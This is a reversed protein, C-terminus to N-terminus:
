DFRGHNRDQGNRTTHQDQKVLNSVTAAFRETDSIIGDVKGSLISHALLGPIAIALGTATTILAQSIGGAMLRPQGSGVVTIVDFTTIIGTVTGLLGLMPAVTSLMRISPLFRELKPFEHLLTEQIADDLIAPPSQRHILCARLTRPLVGKKGDAIRQAEEFKGQSCLRLVHDCFRLSHRGERLLVLFRDIILMALCLAIFALPIMVVGGSRLRHWLGEPQLDTTAAIQGTVDIPLWTSDSSAPGSTERFAELLSKRVQKPLQDQWRFGTQEHPASIAIAVESTESIRYAFLNRGVRLLKARRRQGQPDIIQSEYIATTRAERLFSDILDITLRVMEQPTGEVRTQTLNSLMDTQETRSESVPSTNAIHSLETQVDGCIMAIEALEEQWQTHEAWLAERQRRLEALAQQKRAVALKREVLEDALAQSEARLADRQERRAQEEQKIRRREAQLEARTENVVSQIQPEVEETKACVVESGGAMGTLVLGVITWGAIQLTFHIRHRSM